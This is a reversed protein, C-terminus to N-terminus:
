RRRGRAARGTAPVMREQEEIWERAARRAALRNPAERGRRRLEVAAELSTPAGPRGSVFRRFGELDRDLACRWGATRDFAPFTELRGVENFRDMFQLDAASEGEWIFGRKDNGLHSSTPSTACKDCDENSIPLRDTIAPDRPAPFCSGRVPRATLVTPVKRSVRPDGPLHPAGAGSLRLKM